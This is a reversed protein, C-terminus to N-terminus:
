IDQLEKKLSVRKGLPVEPSISELYASGQAAKNEVFPRVQFLWLKGNLFGLEVDYPAPMEPFKRYLEWALMRLEYVDGLTLINKEFTVQHMQTGGSAPISRFGPERAPALLINRGDHRLLWTEAAQGDVAGAVGWNFAVTLDRNDGSTLGKTIMVGSYAVDVGPIILISPYVNEPNLMFRQRWKFSRETYPSAWVDRIGQLIKAEDVVNFVTKNLGAGTFEALDEMNTDSRLFVPVKGIDLAFASYFSRRLDALFDPQLEIRQIANRLKELEGLVYAERDSEAYGSRQMQEAKNFVDNIFEWYSMSEGPMTQNLHRRFVGFPIVIGEVVHEPFLLKLQGLNAAKPGCIRGSAAANVDQLNLLRIHTLDIKDTPVMVREESRKKETFLAREEATMLGAPKMIVTGKNSVAYFILQHNFRKLAVLNDASVVANPIGLNRALLQVHSVMNGEMVTAIGAVPKLGAPPRNFVYIKDASVEVEDEPGGVVVLEGLAFGPNLGHVQSQNEINFIQNSFNAEAAIFDGLRGADQGLGLLVSSRIRDDYFGNALPEFGAYLDVVDGYVGRVMGSGWEVLSRAREHFTTLDGLAIEKQVPIALDGSLAEWEWMELLGTGAAAEGTYCIKNMLDGSTPTEWNAIEKFFIEELANSIDLLALRAKRNKVTLFGQRIEWLRDATAMVVASPLQPETFARIHAELSARIESDKPLQRVYKNLTAMDVPRYIAEMGAILDDFNQLLVPTLNTRHKERFDKVRQVDSAEPQGHIKVRLDNFPTYKEGIVKSLARVNQLRSDDGRHPIDKTPLRILFFNQEIRRDDALLWNFFDVGWAEEDEIQFAGRYYQGRRLVWGDDVSQLYKGLQYQKLRSHYNEEDWFDEISTTSLIQGLFVHNSQGLAEVADKYRARQVAHEMDACLTEARPVAYTGDPCFWRIDKYPGRPDTKYSEVMKRITTDDRKQAM